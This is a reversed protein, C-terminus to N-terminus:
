EYGTREITFIEMSHISNIYNQGAFRRVYIWIQKRFGNKEITFVRNLDIPIGCEIIEVTKKNTKYKMPYGTFTNNDVVLGQFYNDPAEISKTDFFIIDAILQSTSDSIINGLTDYRIYQISSIEWTGKARHLRNAALEEKDCSTTLCLSTLVFILYILVKMM